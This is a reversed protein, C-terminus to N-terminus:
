ESSAVLSNTTTPTYRGTRVKGYGAVVLTTVLGCVIVYWTPNGHCAPLCRRPQLPGPRRNRSTM